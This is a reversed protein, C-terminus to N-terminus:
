KVEKMMAARQSVRRRRCQENYCLRCKRIDTKLKRLNGAILAHGNPCHTKRANIGAVNFGRLCNERITVVELHDPNVCCRVRCLHDITLGDPIKSRLLAYVSRHAFRMTNDAYVRGYGDRDCFATWIWCGSETVPEIKSQIRLPLSTLSAM